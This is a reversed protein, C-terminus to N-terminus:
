PMSGLERLQTPTMGLSEFYHFGHLYASMRDPIHGKPLTLRAHMGTVRLIGAPQRILTIRNMYASLKIAGIVQSAVFRSGTQQQAKHQYLLFDEYVIKSIGSGRLKSLTSLVTDLDMEETRVCEGLETWTAVGTTDGPDISLIVAYVCRGTPSRTTCTLVAVEGTASASAKSLRSRRNRM